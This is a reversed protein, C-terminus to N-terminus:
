RAAARRRRQAANVEDRHSEHWAKVAAGHCTKCQRHGSTTIRTNQDNFEHGRQCHTAGSLRARNVEGARSRKNNVAQPVPDLHEPNVCRRHRCTVGDVCSRDRSHCLHDLHLGDPISGVMFEYAWRHASVNKGNVRFIGYGWSIAGTWEWCDGVQEVKSWFREQTTARTAQGTPTGYKRWKQYHNSCWGRAWAPKPCVEVDCKV